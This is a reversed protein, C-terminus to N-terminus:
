IMGYCIMDYWLMDCCAMGYWLMGCCIQILNLAPVTANLMISAPGMTGRVALQKPLTLPSQDIVTSGTTGATRTEDAALPTAQM